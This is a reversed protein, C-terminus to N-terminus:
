VSTHICLYTHKPLHKYLFIHLHIHTYKKDEIYMHIYMHIYLCVYMFIKVSPLWFWTQPCFGEVYVLLPEEGPDTLDLNSSLM